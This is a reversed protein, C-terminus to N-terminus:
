DINTREYIIDRENSFVKKWLGSDILKQDNFNLLDYNLEYFVDSNVKYIYDINAVQLDSASLKDDLVDRYYITKDGLQFTQNPTIFIFKKKTLYTWWTPTAQMLITSNKKANNNLYNIAAIENEKIRVYTNPSYEKNFIFILQSTNIIFFLTIIFLIIKKNQWRILFYFGCASLFIAPYLSTRLLRYSIYKDGFDFRSILLLSAFWLIFLLYFNNGRKEKFFKFSFIIAIFILLLYFSPVRWISTLTTLPVMMTNSSTIIFKIHSYFIEGYSPVFLFIIIILLTILAIAKFKNKRHIIFFIAYALFIPIASLNHTIFIIFLLFFSLGTKKWYVTLFFILILFIAMIEPLQGHSYGEVAIPLLFFYLPLCIVAYYFGIVKKILIFFTIPIAFGLLFLPLVIFIKILPVGTILSLAITFIHFIFTYIIYDNNLIQDIYLLHVAPDDGPPFQYHFLLLNSFWIFFNFVILLFILLINKKM